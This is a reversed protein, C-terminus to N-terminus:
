QYLAKIAGWSASEEPTSARRNSDTVPAASGSRQIVADGAYDRWYRLQYVENAKVVFQTQGNFIYTIDPEIEATINYALHQTEYWRENPFQQPSFATWTVDSLDMTVAIQKVANGGAFDPDFLRNTVLLEEDRGWREPTRGANYDSDAFEFEFDPDLLRLIEKGNRENYALLLNEVVHDAESLNKYKSPPDEVVPAAGDDDGCAFLPLLLLVFVVVTLNRKTLHGTM